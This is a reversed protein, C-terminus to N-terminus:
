DPPWEFDEDPGELAARVRAALDPDSELLRRVRRVTNYHRVARRTDASVLVAGAEITSAFM